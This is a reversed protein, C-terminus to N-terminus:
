HAQYYGHEFLVAELPKRAAALDDESLPQGLRLRSASTLAASSVSRRPAGEVRVVGVFFTARGVFVLAVGPKEERFTSEPARFRGSAWLNKISEAVKSPELPQD